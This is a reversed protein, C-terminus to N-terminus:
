RAAAPPPHPSPLEFTLAAWVSRYQVADDPATRELHVSKLLWLGARALKLRARGEADTRAKVPQRPDAAHLAAIQQDALPKGNWLLRVPLESGPELSLPNVEPVIEFDLGAVRDYGAATRARGADAGGVNLLAKSCRSFAEKVPVRPNPGSARWESLLRTHGEEELYGAFARPSVDALSDHSRYVAWHLGADPPTVTGAPHAQDEGAALLPGSPGLLEFRACHRASRPFEEGVFHDGVRLRLALPEGSAPAHSAPEIWFDHAAAPGAVALAGAVALLSIGRM